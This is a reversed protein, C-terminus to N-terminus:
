RFYKWEESQCYKKIELDFRNGWRKSTRCMFDILKKDGMGDIWFWIRLQWFDHFGIRVKSPKREFKNSDKIEICEYGHYLWPSYLSSFSLTAKVATQTPLGMFQFPPWILIRIIYIRIVSIFLFWKGTTKTRVPLEGGVAIMFWSDCLWLNSDDPDDYGVLGGLYLAPINTNCFQLLM